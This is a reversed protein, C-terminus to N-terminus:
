DYLEERSLAKDSLSVGAATGLALLAREWDDQPVIPPIPGLFKERLAMLVLGDPQNGTREAEAMVAATIAPGLTVTMSPEM